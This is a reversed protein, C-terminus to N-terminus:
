HGNTRMSSSNAEALEHLVQNQKVVDTHRRTKVVPTVFTM